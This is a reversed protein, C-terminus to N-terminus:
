IIYEVTIVLHGQSEQIEAVGMFIELGKKDEVSM